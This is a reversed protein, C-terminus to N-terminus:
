LFLLCMDLTNNWCLPLNKSIRHKIDLLVSKPDQPKPLMFTSDNVKLLRFISGIFDSKPHFFSFGVRWCQMWCHNLNMILLDMTLDQIYFVKHVGWIVPLIKMNYTVRENFTKSKRKLVALLFVVFYWFLWFSSPLRCLGKVM